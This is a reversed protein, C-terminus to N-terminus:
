AVIGKTRLDAIRDPALGLDTSLVQDTHGGVQPVTTPLEDAMASLKIPNGVALVPEDRDDTRDLAVVMHRSATNPDAIVDGATNIPGVAVGAPGLERCVELRTRGAAWAEIGPRIIDDLHTLWGAGDGFRPDDAWEPRGITTALARFMHPRGCQLVFWGDAARFAHNILPANGARVGMSWYNIGADNLAVLADLMGVDVHQGVGTLERHRLAALIGIAAFLASATDGLAGMPSVVPPQDGPLPKFTYLGAMAEAIPAYAPWSRYGDDTTTGFGSVSLYVVGPHISSVADYGLGLRDLAGAKFNQAVVDFRPILDLVLQRGEPAKLDISISRKGLNNRLFTCGNAQGTADLMAPRSQRGSEGEGIPEVKVVDAGFRALLQTAYPVSQMQELALIRVGTLPLLAATMPLHDDCRQLRVQMGGSAEVAAANSLGQPERGMMTCHNDQTLAAAPRPLFQTLHLECRKGREVRAVLDGCILDGPELAVTVDHDGSEGGGLLDTRIPREDLVGDGGVILLPATELLPLGVASREQLRHVEPADIGPHGVEHKRRAEGSDRGAEEPDLPHAQVVVLGEELLPAASAGWPVLILEIPREGIRLTPGGLRDRHPHRQDVQGLLDARHHERRAAVQVTWEAELRDRIRGLDVAQILDAGFAKRKGGVAGQPGTVGGEVGAPRQVGCPGIGSALQSGDHGDDVEGIAEQDSLRGSRLLLEVAM